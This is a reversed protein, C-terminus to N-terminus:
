GVHENRATTGHADRRPINAAIDARFGAAVSGAVGPHVCPDLIVPGPQGDVDRVQAGGTRTMAAQGDPAVVQIRSGHTANAPSAATFHHVHTDSRGLENSLSFVTSPSKAEMVYQTPM